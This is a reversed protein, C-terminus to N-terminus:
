CRMRRRSRPRRANLILLAGVGIILLPWLAGAAFNIQGVVQAAGILGFIAVGWLPWTSRRGNLYGILWILGFAGAVCLSTTGPGTYLGVESIVGAVVLAGILLGPIMAVYSGGFVWGALFAIAIAGLILTGASISPVVYQILLGGGVLVLLLGLWPFSRDRDAAWSWARWEPAVEEQPDGGLYSGAGPDRTTEYGPTINRPQSV